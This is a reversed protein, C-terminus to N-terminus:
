EKDALPSRRAAVAAAFSRALVAPVPVADAVDLSWFACVQTAIAVVHQPGRLEAGVTWRVRSLDSLWMCGRVPEGLMVPHKFTIESRLLRITTGDALSAAVPHHRALFAQRLEALWRAFV